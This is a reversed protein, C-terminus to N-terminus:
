EAHHWRCISIISTVCVHSVMAILKGGRYETLNISQQLTSTFLVYQSTSNIMICEQIRTNLKNTTIQEHHAHNFMYAHDEYEKFTTSRQKMTSWRGFSIATFM